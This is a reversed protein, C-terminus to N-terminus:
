YLYSLNLEKPKNKLWNQHGFYSWKMAAINVDPNTYQYYSSGNISVKSDVFVKVNKIGKKDYDAKVFQAFQWIMDASIAFRKEQKYTLYNSLNVKERPQYKGNKDPISVYVHVDASKKRLMMRWSLRHGEETWFVNGPIHLHRVPLYIQWIIYFVVLYSFAIRRTNILGDEDNRDMMFSKTKFFLEQVKIPDYFFIMMALSFFPFIGIGFIVSNFLHFFIACKIAIGRTRPALMAPIILLDFFFGLWAIVQSFELSGVIQALGNLQYKSSLIYEYNVFHQNLFVGNFWDPYLKQLAAFTYVIFLQAIFLVRVWNKCTLRKLKPFILSDISFFQHAPMITMMWSVLMFLYYHNNYSTKQMFYSLSWMIAFSIIAFRYLGGIAIFIGLLGMIGYYYIMNPGLLNNLWEFGIFTFTLKPEVLNANVWGTFIAGWCEAVILLGFLIRFIVLPSNDIKRFLYESFM